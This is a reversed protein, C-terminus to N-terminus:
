GSGIAARKRQEEGVILAFLRMAIVKEEWGPAIGRFEDVVELHWQKLRMEESQTFVKRGLLNSIVRTSNRRRGQPGDESGGNNEPKWDHYIEDLLVWHDRSWTTSSLPEDILSSPVPSSSVFAVNMSPTTNTGYSGGASGNSPTKVPSRLCSKTPSVNLRVKASALHATEAWKLTRKQISQNEKEMESTLSLSSDNGYESESVQAATQPALRLVNSRSPSSLGLPETAASSSSLEPTAHHVVTAKNSNVGFINNAYKNVKWPLSSFISSGDADGADRVQPKFDLKQLIPKLPQSHSASSQDSQFESASSDQPTSANAQSTRTLVPPRTKTPSSALLASLDLNGSERVRPKFNEKQPITFSPVDVTDDEERGSKDTLGKGLSTNAHFAPSSFHSLEDSYVLRKSNKRWPSPLKSRRPKELNEKALVHAHQVAPSSNLTELLLGFNEDEEEIGAGDRTEDESDIVIAQSTGASEVQKRVKEREAAREDEFYTTDRESDERHPGGSYDDHGASSIVKDDSSATANNTIIEEEAQWSMADDDSLLSNGDSCVIPLRNDSHHTMEPLGLTYVLKFEQTYVNQNSSVNNSFPDDQHKGNDRPNPFLNGVL